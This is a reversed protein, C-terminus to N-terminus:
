NMVFKEKLEISPEEQEGTEVNEGGSGVFTNWEENAIL